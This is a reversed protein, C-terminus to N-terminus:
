SSVGKAYAKLNDAGWLRKTPMTLWNHTNGWSRDPKGVIQIAKTIERNAAKYNAGVHGKAECIYCM